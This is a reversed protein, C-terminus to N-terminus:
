SHFDPWANIGDGERRPIVHIHFHGVSQGASKGSAHLLNVGSYGCNKVLYASLKKVSAMLHALTEEDCDFISECHVKPVALIHNEVDNATDLFAFTHADEYIKTCLETNAILKCFICEDM